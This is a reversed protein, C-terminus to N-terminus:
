PGDRRDASERDERPFERLRDNVFGLIKRLRFEVALLQQATLANMTERLEEIEEDRHDVLATVFILPLRGPFATAGQHRPDAAADSGPVAHIPHSGAQQCHTGDGFAFLCRGDQDPGYLHPWDAQRQPDLGLDFAENGVGDLVAGLQEFHDPCLTLYQSLDHLVLVETGPQPCPHDFAPFEENQLARGVDCPPPSSM